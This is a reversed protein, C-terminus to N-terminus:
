PYRSRAQRDRRKASVHSRGILAASSTSLAIWLTVNSV